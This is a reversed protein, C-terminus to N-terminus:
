REVCECMIVVIQLYRRLHCSRGYPADKPVKLTTFLRSIAHTTLLEIQSITSQGLIDCSIFSEM